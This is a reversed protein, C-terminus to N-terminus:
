QRWSKGCNHCTIFCTMPEDASRTQMEFYTTKKSKCRGCKFFGTDPVEQKEESSTQTSYKEWKKCFLENGTMKELSKFGYGTQKMLIKYALGDTSTHDKLVQVINMFRRVYRQLTCQDSFQTQTIFNIVSREFNVTIADITDDSNLKQFSSDDKNDDIIKKVLVRIKSRAKERLPELEEPLEIM